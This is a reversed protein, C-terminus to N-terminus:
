LLSALHPHRREVRRDTTSRQGVRKRRQLPRHPLLTNDWTGGFGGPQPRRVLLYLAPITSSTHNSKVVAYLTGDAAWLWTSTITPWTCAPTARTHRSKMPRGSLEPDTGDEHYRFGWKQLNGNGWFVGISHNPFAVISNVDGLGTQDTLIIPGTFSSFPPDSYYVYVWNFHDTALWLRGTSDVELTGTEGVFM